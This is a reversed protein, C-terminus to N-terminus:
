NDLKVEPQQTAVQPLQPTAESTSPTPVSGTPTDQGCSVAQVEATIAVSPEREHGLLDALVIGGPGESGWGHIIKASRVLPELAKGIKRIEKLNAKPNIGALATSAKQVVRALTDRAESSGASPAAPQVSLVRRAIGDHSRTVDILLSKWGHRNVWVNIVPVSVGTEAAIRTPRVGRLYLEKCRDRLESSARPKKASKVPSVPQIVSETLNESDDTVTPSVTDVSADSM